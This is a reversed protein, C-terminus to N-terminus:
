RPSCASIEPPPYGVVIQRFLFPSYIFIGKCILVSFQGLPDAEGLEVRPYEIVVGDTLRELTGTDLTDNAYNWAAGM